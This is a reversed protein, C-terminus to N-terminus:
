NHRRQWDYKSDGENNDDSYLEELEKQYEPDNIKDEQEKRLEDPSKEDPRDIFHFGESAM